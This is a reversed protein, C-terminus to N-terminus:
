LEEDEAYHGENRKGRQWEYKCDKCHYDPNNEVMSCGGLKIKGEYYDQQMEPGPMGYRIPIVSGKSSCEPCTINNPM